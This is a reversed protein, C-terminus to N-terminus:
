AYIKRPEYWYCFVSTRWLRDISQLDMWASWLGGIHGKPDQASQERRSSCTPPESAGIRGGSKNRMTKPLTVLQPWRASYCENIRRTNTWLSPRTETRTLSAASISTLQCSSHIFPHVLKDEADGVKPHKKRCWFVRVCKRKKMFDGMGSYVPRRILWFVPQINYKISVKRLRGSQSWIEKHEWSPVSASPHPIVPLFCKLVSIANTIAKAPFSRIERWHNSIIEIYCIVYNNM